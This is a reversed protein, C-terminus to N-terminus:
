HATTYYAGLLDMEGPSLKAAIARMREFTDNHRSGDAFAHATRSTLPSQGTLGADRDARRRGPCSVRLAAAVGRM